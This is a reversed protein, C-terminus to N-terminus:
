LRFIDIVDACMIHLLIKALHRTLIRINYTCGCRNICIFLHDLIQIEKILAIRTNECVLCEPDRLIQPLNIRDGQPIRRRRIMDHDLIRDMGSLIYVAKQSHLLDLVIKLVIRGPIGVAVSGIRIKKCIEAQM